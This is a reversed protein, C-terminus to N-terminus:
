MRERGLRHGDWHLLSARTSAMWVDAGARRGTVSDVIGFERFSRERWRYGDWHGLLPHSARERRREGGIWVDGNPSSWVTRYNDFRAAYGNTGLSFIRWQPVCRARSETTAALVSFCCIASATGTLLRAVRM